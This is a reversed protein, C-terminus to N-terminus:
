EFSTCPLASEGGGDRAGVQRALALAYGGAAALMVAVAPAKWYPLVVRRLVPEVLNRYAAAWGRKALAASPRIVRSLLYPWVM